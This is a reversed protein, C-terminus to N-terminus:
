SGLQSDPQYWEKKAYRAVTKPMLRWMGHVNYSGCPGIRESRWGEHSVDMYTYNSPIPHHIEYEQNYFIGRIMYLHANVDDIKCGQNWHRTYCNSYRSQATAGNIIAQNASTSTYPTIIMPVSYAYKGIMEEEVSRYFWNNDCAPNSGNDLDKIGQTNPNLIGQQVDQPYYNYQWFNLCVDEDYWSTITWTKEQIDYWRYNVGPSKPFERLYSDIVSNLLNFYSGIVSNYAYVNVMSNPEARDLGGLVYGPTGIVKGHSDYQTVEANKLLGEDEKILRLAIQLTDDYYSLDCYGFGLEKSNKIEIIRLYAKIGDLFDSATLYYKETTLNWEPEQFDAFQWNIVAELDALDFTNYDLIWASKLKNEDNVHNILNEVRFSTESLQNHPASSVDEKQCASLVLLFAVLLLFIFKKM